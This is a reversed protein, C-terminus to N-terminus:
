IWVSRLVAQLCFSPKEAYAFYRDDGYDRHKRFAISRQWFSQGYGVVYPIKAATVLRSSRILGVCCSHCVGVEPDHLQPLAQTM